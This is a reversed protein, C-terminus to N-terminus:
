RRWCIPVISGKDIFAVVSLTVQITQDKYTVTTNAVWPRIQEGIECADERKAGPLILAREEGGCRAFIEDGRIRSQTIRKTVQRLVEDGGQLGYTTNIDKCINVDMM